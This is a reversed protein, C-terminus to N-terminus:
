TKGLPSISQLKIKCLPVFYDPIVEDLNERIRLSTQNNLYISNPFAIIRYFCVYSFSCTIHEFSNWKLEKDSPNVEQM